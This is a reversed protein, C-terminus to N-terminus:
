LSIAASSPSSSGRRGHGTGGECRRGDGEFLSGEGNWGDALVLGIPELSAAFTEASAQAAHSFMTEKDDM